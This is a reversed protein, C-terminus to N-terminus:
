IIPLVESLAPIYGGPFIYKRVWPDTVSPPSSRGITHLLAIGNDSLLNKFKLFFNPFHVVGVHEFMGVSVIRNFTGTQERYDRLYFDILDTLGENKAKKHSEELQNESLTIGTVKAGITKALFIALGGWGSGIDLVSQGPSIMLKAAIHRKKNEQATELDTEPTEFYACSYQLDPDLFLGYLKQSLDYHHAMNRKSLIHPNFQQFRKFLRSVSEVMLHFPHQGNTKINQGLLSLFDYITGNAVTLHGEM